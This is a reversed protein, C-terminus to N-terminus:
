AIRYYPWGSLCARLARGETVADFRLREPSRPDDGIRFSGDPSPALPQEIEAGRAAPFILWAQDGRLIVRFNTTWPNYSRYHGEIARLELSPEPLARPLEGSRIYRRDGHWLEPAEGALREIRLPFEDFGADPVLYLDDTLWELVIVRGDARLELGDSMVLEVSPFGAAESTYVGAVTADREVAAAKSSSDRTGSDRDGVIRLVAGALTMPRAGLGNQLVIVGLGAEPDTEMGALYGVTSGSHGVLRRGDLERISLGYGYGDGAEDRAHVSTMRGFANASLLRGGSGAGSRLLVRVFKCMDSATSAICGDAAGTELWTAPALEAGGYGLRDDHLYEYGVALRARIENTIAPETASMGLPDLIRARIIESYSRGEVAELVLGLVKYGLNSYHFRDGPVALTPVERLTWVQFAAEPTADIGAVIGSTHSLLHSVTVPCNGEAQPILLWPVYREVPAELEIRQEDVLQLIAIATFSKGVSGIEFLTDPTVPQRTALDAFGYTRVTLTTEQDTVGLALGPQRRREMESEVAEDIRAITAESLVGADYLRGRGLLV